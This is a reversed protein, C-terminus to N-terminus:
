TSPLRARLAELATNFYVLKSVAALIAERDGAAFARGTEQVMADFTRRTSAHLDHLTELPAEEIQERLELVENLLTADRVPPIEKVGMRQLLYRARGCPDRLLAYGENLKASHDAAYQRERPSRNMHLDPHLKRQLLRFNHELKKEDLEFREPSRTAHTLAAARRLAM